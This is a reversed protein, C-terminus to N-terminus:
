EVTTDAKRIFSAASSALVIIIARIAPDNTLVGANEGVYVAVAALGAFAVHMLFRKFNSM